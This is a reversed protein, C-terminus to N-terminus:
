SENWITSARVIVTCRWVGLLVSWIRTMVLCLEGGAGTAPPGYAPVSPDATASEPLAESGSLSGTVLDHDNVQAPAGPVDQVVVPVVVKVGVTFHLSSATTVATRVALSPSWGGTVDVAVTLMPLAAGTIVETVTGATGTASPEETLRVPAKVSAPEFSVWTALM